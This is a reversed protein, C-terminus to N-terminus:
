NELLGKTSLKEVHIRRGRRTGRAILEGALNTDLYEIAEETLERIEDMDSNVRVPVLFGADALAGGTTTLYPSDVSEPVITRVSDWYLLSTKLWAEDAVDIWPYYLAQPM